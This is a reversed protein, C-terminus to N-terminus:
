RGGAVITLASLSRCHNHNIGRCDKFHQKAGGKRFSETLTNKVPTFGEM